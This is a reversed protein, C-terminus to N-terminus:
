KESKKKKNSKADKTGTGKNSMIVDQESIAIPEAKGLFISDWPDRVDGDAPIDFVDSGSRREIMETEGKERSYARLNLRDFVPAM